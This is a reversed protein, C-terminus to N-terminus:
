MKDNHSAKPRADDKIAEVDSGSDTKILLNMEVRM